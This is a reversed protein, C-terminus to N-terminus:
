KRGSAGDRDTPRQCSSSFGVQRLAEDWVSETSGEESDAKDNANPPKLVHDSLARSAPDPEDGPEGASAPGDDM